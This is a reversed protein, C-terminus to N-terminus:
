TKRCLNSSLPNSSALPTAVIALGANSRIEDYGCLSKGWLQYVCTNTQVTGVRKREKKREEQLTVFGLKQNFM